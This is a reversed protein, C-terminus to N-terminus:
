STLPKTVKEPVPLNFLVTKFPVVRNVVPDLTEPLTSNSDIAERARFIRSRVTGVPCEMAQAISLAIGLRKSLKKNMDKRYQSSILSKYAEIIKSYKLVCNLLLSLIKKHPSKLEIGDLLTILNM